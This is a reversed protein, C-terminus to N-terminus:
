DLALSCDLIRIVQECALVRNKETQVKDQNAFMIAIGLFLSVAPGCLQIDALLHDFSFKKM